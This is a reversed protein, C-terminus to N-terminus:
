CSLAQRGICHSMLSAPEIGPNPLDGPSPFLLGSRYEQRSFEMSLPAKRPVTWPPASLQTRSCCSLVCVPVWFLCLQWCRPFPAFGLAKQVLRNWWTSGKAECTFLRRRASGTSATSCSCSQPTKMLIMSPMYTQVAKGAAELAATPQPPFQMQKREQSALSRWRIPVDELWQTDRRSLNWEPGTKLSGREKTPSSGRRQERPAQGPM